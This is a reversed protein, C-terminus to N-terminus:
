NSLLLQVGKPLDEKMLNVITARLLAFPDVGQHDLFRYDEIGILSQWLQTPINKLPVPIAICKQDCNNKWVSGSYHSTKTVEVLNGQFKRVRPKEIEAQDNLLMFRNFVEIDLLAGKELTIEYPYKKEVIEPLLYKSQFRVFGFVGVILAFVALM